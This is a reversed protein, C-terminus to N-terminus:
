IGNKEYAAYWAMRQEGEGAAPNGLLYLDNNGSPITIGLVRLAFNRLFLYYGGQEDCRLEVSGFGLKMVDQVPFLDWTKVGVFLCPAFNKERGEEDYEKITEAESFATIFELGIDAYDSLAEMDGFPLKWTFASWSDSLVSQDLGEVYVGSYGLMGPATKGDSVTQFGTLKVPFQYVFSGTRKRSNKEDFVLSDYTSQYMRGCKIFQCGSFRLGEKEDGYGFFDFSYQRLFLSGDLFFSIKGPEALIRGERVCIREIVSSIVEYWVAERLSFVYNGLGNEGRQFVGDFLLSAGVLPNNAIVKAGFMRKITLSATCCFSRVQNDAFVIDLSETRFFCEANREEVSCPEAEYHVLGDVAAEAGARRQHYALYFARLEGQPISDTLFAVEDPLRDGQVPAHFVLVGCWRPNELITLLNTFTENELSLQKVLAVADQLKKKGKETVLSFLAEKEAAECISASDGYKLIWFTKSDAAPSCNFEWGDMCELFGSQEIQIWSRLTDVDEILILPSNSLLAGKLRGKVSHLFFSSSIEVREFENKQFSEASYLIQMGKESLAHYSQNECLGFRQVFEKTRKEEELTELMVQYREKSLVKEDLWELEQLLEKGGSSGFADKRYPLISISMKSEMVAFPVPLYEMPENLSNLRFFASRGPHSYYLSSGGDGCVSIWPVSGPLTKELKLSQRSVFSPKGPVFLIRGEGRWELYEAGNLSCPFAASGEGKKIYGGAPAPYYVYGGKEWLVEREFVIRSTATTELFVNEGYLMSFSSEIMGSPIVFYTRDGKGIHNIDIQVYFMGSGTRHYAMFPQVSLSTVNDEGDKQSIGYVMRVEPIQLGIESVSGACFGGAAEKTWEMTWADLALLRRGNLCVQM